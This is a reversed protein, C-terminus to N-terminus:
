VNPRAADWRRAGDPQRRAIACALGPLAHQWLSHRWLFRTFVLCALATCTHCGRRSAALHRWRAPSTRPAVTTRIRVEEPTMKARADELTAKKAAATKAGLDPDPLTIMTVRHRNNLYFKDILDGFM